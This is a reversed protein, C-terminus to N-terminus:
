TQLNWRRTTIRSPQLNAMQNKAAIKRGFTDYRHVPYLADVAAGPAIPKAPPKPPPPNFHASTVVLIVEGEPNLAHAKPM